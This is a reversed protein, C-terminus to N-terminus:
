CANVIARAETPTLLLQKCSTRANQHFFTHSTKAQALRDPQPVAWVPNALADAHANGEALFGPLNTHSRIHLVYFPYIRQLVARWLAKLLLFLDANNVEKLLSCDVQQVVDAVYASDVILNFHEDCNQFAMTVAKLEVLQASGTSQGQLTQWRDENKWTVIAKGTKGSGDTFVTPGDVPTRSLKPKTLKPKASLPTTNLSQLLKHSPFHYDIQGTYSQLTSQLASSNALSWEFYDQQILITFKAPDQAA